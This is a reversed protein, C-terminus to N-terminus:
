NYKIRVNTENEKKDEEKIIKTKTKLLEESYKNSILEGGYKIFLDEVICETAESWYKYKKKLEEM